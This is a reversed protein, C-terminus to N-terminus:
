SSPKAKVKQQPMNAKMVRYKLLSQVVHPKLIDFLEERSLKPVVQRVAEFQRRCQAHLGMAITEADSKGDDMLTMASETCDRYLVMANDLENDQAISNSFVCAMGILVAYRKSLYM